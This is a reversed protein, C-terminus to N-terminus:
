TKNPTGGGCDSTQKKDPVTRCICCYNGFPWGVISLTNVIVGLVCMNVHVVCM